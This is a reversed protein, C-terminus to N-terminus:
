VHGGAPMRISSYLLYRYFNGAVEFASVIGGAIAGIVEGVSGGDVAAIEAGSLMRIEDQKPTTESNAMVKEEETTRMM